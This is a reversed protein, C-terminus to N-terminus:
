VRGIAQVAADYHGTMLMAFAMVSFLGIRALTVIVSPVGWKCCSLM